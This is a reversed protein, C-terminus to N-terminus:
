VLSLGSIRLAFLATTRTVDNHIGIRRLAWIDEPPDSEIGFRGSVAAGYGAREVEEAVQRNYNGNPYCFIPVFQIRRTRLADRSDRVEKLLQDKALHTLIRHTCSHSGFSIGHDSMEEVETWDVLVREECPERGLVRRCGDLWDRIEPEPISKLRELINDLKEDTPEHELELSPYRESLAALRQKGEQEGRTLWCRRLTSAVEDWWFRRRTGVFATPLFLTAPIGHDRLIPYAYLYNDRWGDDFTITCYRCQRDWAGLRWRSLLDAFSLIEFEEKLFVMQQEFVDKLVYMGPQVFSAELDQDRLVRHYTLIVVKGRHRLAGLHSAHYLGAGVARLSRKIRGLPM